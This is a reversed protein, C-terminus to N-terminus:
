WPTYFAARMFKSHGPPTPHNDKDQDKKLLFDKFGKYRKNEKVSFTFPNTNDIKQRYVQSKQELNPLSPKFGRVMALVLASLFFIGIIILLRGTWKYGRKRIKNNTQFVQGSHGM